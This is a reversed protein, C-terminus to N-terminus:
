LAGSACPPEPVSNSSVDGLRNGKSLVTSLTLMRCGGCGGCAGQELSPIYKSPLQPLRLRGQGEWLPLVNKQGFTETSSAFTLDDLWWPNVAGDRAMGVERDSKGNTPCKRSGALLFNFQPYCKIQAQLSINRYSLAVEKYLCTIQLGRTYSQSGPVSDNRGAETDSCRPPCTCGM